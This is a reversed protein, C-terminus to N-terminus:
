LSLSLEHSVQDGVFTDYGAPFSSVFEHACAAKAAAEIEESCLCVSARM